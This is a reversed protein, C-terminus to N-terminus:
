AATLASTPPLPWVTVSTVTGSVAVSKVGNACCTLFAFGSRTKTAHAPLVAPAIHFDSSWCFTNLPVSTTV